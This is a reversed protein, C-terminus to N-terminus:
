EKLDSLEEMFNHMKGEEGLSGGELGWAPVQDVGDQLTADPVGKKISERSQSQM